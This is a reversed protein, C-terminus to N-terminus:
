FTWQFGSGIRFDPSEAGVGFGASFSVAMRDDLQYLAGGEFINAEVRKVKLEERVFNVVLTLKEIFERSYGLALRYHHEREADNRGANHLWSINFHLRDNGDGLNLSHTAALTLATDLGRSNKGTPIELAPIIALAPVMGEEDLFQYHGGLRLDGSGTRDADGAFFAVSAEIHAYPVIGYAVKPRFVVHDQDADTEEWRAFGQAALVRPELAFADVLETPFGPELNHGPAPPDARDGAVSLMASTLVLIACLCILRTTKMM